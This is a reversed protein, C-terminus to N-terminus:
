LSFFCVFWLFASACQYICFTSREFSPIQLLIPQNNYFNCGYSFRSCQSTECELASWKQNISKQYLDLTCYAAAGAAHTVYLNFLPNKFKNFIKSKFLCYQQKSANNTCLKNFIDCISANVKKQWVKAM